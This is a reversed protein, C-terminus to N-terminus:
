SPRTLLPTAFVVYRPAKFKAEEGFVTLSVLDFSHPKGPMYCTHSYPSTKAPFGPPFLRSPLGLRLHSLLILIFKWSTPHPCPSSQDESSLSLLKPTTLATIFGPTGYFAPFKKVLQSFEPVKLLNKLRITTCSAFVSHLYKCICLKV